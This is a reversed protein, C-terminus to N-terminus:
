IPERQTGRGAVPNAIGTAKTVTPTVDHIRDYRRGIIEQYPM